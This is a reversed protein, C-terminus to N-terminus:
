LLKSAAAKEAASPDSLDIVVRPEVKPQARLWADCKAVVPAPIKGASELSWGTAVLEANDPSFEDGRALSQLCRDM